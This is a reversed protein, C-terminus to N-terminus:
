CAIISALTQNSRQSADIEQKRRHNASRHGARM